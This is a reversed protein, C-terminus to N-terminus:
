WWWWRDDASRHYYIFLGPLSCFYRHYNRAADADSSHQANFFERRVANYEFRQPVKAINSLSVETVQNVATGRFLTADDDDDDDDDTPSGKHGDIERTDEASPAM